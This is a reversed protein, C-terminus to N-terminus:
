LAGPTATRAIASPVIMRSANRSVRAVRVGATSVTAAASVAAAYYPAGWADERGGRAGVVPRDHSGRGSGWRIFQDGDAAYRVEGRAEALPKGMEHTTLLALDDERALVFDFARRLIDSRRRPATKAWGRQARVAADLARRGDQPSADAVTTLVEGAAPNDVAMTADDTAQVWGGDIFLKRPFSAAFETFRDTQMTATM